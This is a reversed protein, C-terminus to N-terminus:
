FPAGHNELHVALILRTTTGQRTQDPIQNVHNQPRHDILLVVTPHKNRHVGLPHHGGPPRVRAPQPRAPAPATTKM